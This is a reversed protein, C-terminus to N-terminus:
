LESEFNNLIKLYRILAAWKQYNICFCLSMNIKQVCVNLYLFFCDCIINKMYVNFIFNDTIDLFSEFVIQIDNLHKSNLNMLVLQFPVVEPMPVHQRRNHRPGGKLGQQSVIFPTDLGWIMRVHFHFKFFGIPFCVLLLIWITNSSYKKLFLKYTIKSTAM